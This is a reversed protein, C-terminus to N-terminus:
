WDILVAHRWAIIGRLGVIDHVYCWIQWEIPHRLSLHSSPPVAAPYM